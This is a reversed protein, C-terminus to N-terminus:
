LTSARRRDVDWPDWAAPAVRLHEHVATVVHDAAISSEDGDVIFLEPTLSGPPTATWTAGGVERETLHQALPQLDVRPRIPRSCYQVWGEYRYTFRYSRGRLLLVATRETANHLALPHIGEFWDGGAFRHGRLGGLKEPVTVIALDVDNSEEISVAGSRLADESAALQADEDAWLDRYRDIGDILEPLRGLLEAYLVACAEDYNGPLPALPSRDPDAFAALVMSVRAAQRYRYTAFDGAAAVDKMVARRRLADDPKTLAFASVLGDQDFHNNTVVEAAGHLDAGRDLYRFAIQASLDDALDPPAPLRPWHTLCLTTAANPSGDVVVNPTSVTTEYPAYRLPFVM